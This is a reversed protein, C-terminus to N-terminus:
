SFIYWHTQFPNQAVKVNHSAGFKKLPNRLALFTRSVRLVLQRDRLGGFRGIDATM